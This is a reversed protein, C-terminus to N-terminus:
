FIYTVSTDTIILFFVFYIVVKTDNHAWVQIRVIEYFRYTKRDVCSAFFQHM